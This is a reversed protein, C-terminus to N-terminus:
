LGAFWNYGQDEWYGGQFSYHVSLKTVFKANKFGLKVPIRLRLPAGFSRSLPKGLFDLALLTQPHMASAMDISTFYGDECDLRLYPANMDAGILSLVNALRVGSWEGIASWGEICILRTIHSEQEMDRLESLTLPKKHKINDGLSLQWHMPDIKPVYAEPYFANFPFPTTIDDASYTPALKEPSFLMGQARDNWRSAGDLVIRRWDPSLGLTLAAAGVGAVGMAANIFGRRTLSLGENTIQQKQSSM